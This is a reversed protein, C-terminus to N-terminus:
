GHMSAHTCAHVTYRIDISSSSLDWAANAGYYTDVFVRDRFTVPTAPTCRVAACVVNGIM